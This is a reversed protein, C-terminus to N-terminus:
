RDIMTKRKGNGTALTANELLWAAKWGDLVYRSKLFLWCKQHCGPLRPLRPVTTALMQMSEHFVQLRNCSQCNKGFAALIALM